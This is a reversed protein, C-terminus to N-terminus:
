NITVYPRQQNERKSIETDRWQDGAYFKLREIEAERNKQNAKKAAEYCRRVYGPIDKRAIKPM